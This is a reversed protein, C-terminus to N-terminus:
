VEEDECAMNYPYTDDSSYVQTQGGAGAAAAAAATGAAAGTARAGGAGTSPDAPLIASMLPPPSSSPPSAQAAQSGGFGLYHPSHQSKSQAPPPPPPPPAHEHSHTHSHSPELSESSMGIHGGKRPFCPCWREPIPGCLALLTPLFLLSYILSLVSVLVIVIGFKVFIQLTCFLLFVACGISTTASGILSRGMATLAYDVRRFRQLLIYKTEKVENSLLSLETKRWRGIKGQADPAHTYSHAVHLNFTFVYGLFVILAVVEIAGMEWSMLTVMFFLLTLVVLLVSLMSLLALLLDLTMCALTLFGIAVSVAVITATSSIIRDQAEARVWLSSTHWAKNARITAEANKDSVYSDWAEMVELARGAAVESNLTITIDIRTARVKDDERLFDKYWGESTYTSAIFDAITTYFDRSPFELGINDLYSEYAHLWTGSDGLSYVELTDPIDEVMQMMARQAWPDAPEFLSDFDWMRVVDTQLFFDFPGLERLELGWVLTVIAGESDLRRGHAKARAAAALPLSLAPPPLQALLENVLEKPPEHGLQSSEAQLKAKNNSEAETRHDLRGLGHDGGPSERAMTASSRELRRSEGSDSADSTENSSEELTEITSRYFSGVVTGTAECPKSGGCYCFLRRHSQSSSGAGITIQAIPAEYAEWSATTGSRWHEQVVPKQRFPGASSWTFVRGKESDAAPFVAGLFDTFNQRFGQFNGYDGAGIFLTEVSLTIDQLPTSEPALFNEDILDTTSTSSSSSSSSSDSATGETYCDCRDGMPVEEWAVSDSSEPMNCWRAACFSCVGCSRPCYASMSGGLTECYGPTSAWSSCSEDRDMCVTMQDTERESTIDCLWADASAPSRAVEVMNEVFEEVYTKGIVQNHSDPYVAPMGGNVEITLPIAIVCVLALGAFAAFIKQRQMLIFRSWSGGSWSLVWNYFAQKPNDKFKINTSSPSGILNRPTLDMPAVAAVKKKSGANRREYWKERAVMALPYQALQLLLASIVCLGMFLGFERLPLLASALNVLFSSASCVTSTACSSGSNGWLWLLRKQLFGEDAEGYLQINGLSRMTDSLHGAEPDLEWDEGASERSAAEEIKTIYWKSQRWGDTLVFTFDSGIGFMVFAALCNVVSVEEMGSLRKFFVLGLPLCEVILFLGFSALILSRTHIWMLILIVVMGGVALKCDNYLEYFIDATDLDDSDYFVRIGVEELNEDQTRLVPHVDDDIFNSWAEKAESTSAYSAGEGISMAFLFHSQLLSLKAQSSDGETYSFSEPVLRYFPDVQDEDWRLIAMSAAPHMYISGGGSLEIATNSGGYLRSTNRSSSAPEVPWVYNIISEGPDCCMPDGDGAKDHCVSKWSAMSRLGEEYQQIAYLRTEDLLTGDEELHYIVHFMKYLWSVSQLRRESSATPTYESLTWAHLYADRALSADTSARTFSEFDTNFGGTQWLAGCLIAVVIQQLFIAIVPRRVTQLLVGKWFIRFKRRFGKSLSVFIPVPEPEPAGAGEQRLLELEDPPSQYKAGVGGGSGGGGAGSSSQTPPTQGLAEQLILVEAPIGLFGPDDTVVHRVEGPDGFHAHLSTSSEERHILSKASRSTPLTMRGGQDGGRSEAEAFNLLQGAAAAAAAAM